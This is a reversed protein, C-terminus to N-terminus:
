RSQIVKIFESDTIQLNNGVQRIMYNRIEKQTSGDPWVYTTVGEWTTSTSTRSSLYLDSVTVRSFQRFFDPDFKEALSSSYLSYARGFEGKSLLSYLTEILAIEEGENFSTGTQSGSSSSEVESPPGVEASGVESKLFDAFALAKEETQFSAVQIAEEGTDKKKMKYADRCFQTTVIQLNRDSPKVFVPYFNVPYASPNSPLSDGCSVKPFDENDFISTRDPTPTPTSTPASTPTTTSLIAPTPDPESPLSPTSTLTSLPSPPSPTSNPSVGLWTQVEPQSLIVPVLLASGIFGLAVLGLRTLWENGTKNPQNDIAPIVQTQPDSTKEFTSSSTSFDVPASDLASNEILTATENINQVKVDSEVNEPTLKHPAEIPQSEESISAHTSVENSQEQNEITVANITSDPIITIETPPNLNIISQGLVQPENLKESKPFRNGELLFYLSTKSSEPLSEPEFDLFKTCYSDIAELFSRINNGSLHSEPDDLCEIQTLHLLFSRQNSQAIGELIEYFSYFSNSRDDNISALKRIERRHQPTVPFSSRDLILNFFTEYWGQTSREHGASQNLDSNIKLDIIIVGADYFKEHLRTMDEAHDDPVNGILCCLHYNKVYEHIQNLTDKNM